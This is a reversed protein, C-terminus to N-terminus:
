LCLYDPLGDDGIPQVDFGKAQHFQFVGIGRGACLSLRTLTPNYSLPRALVLIM